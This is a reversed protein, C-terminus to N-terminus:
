SFAMVATFQMDNEPTDNLTIIKLAVENAANLGLVIEEYSKPTFQWRHVDVYGGRAMDYEHIAGLARGAISEKWGSDVHDGAWHRYAENHTTLARHEIVKLLPHRTHGKSELVAQLSSPDIFHDFCYRKDPIVLYYKGGPELLREVQNFHRILDPQHEICHCSIVASFKADIVSLDGDNAVYNITPITDPDYGVRKARERLEDTTMVDFYSVNEGRVCPNNFPGIELVSRELQPITAFSQRTVFSLQSKRKFISKM